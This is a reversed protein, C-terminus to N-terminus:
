KKFEPDLRLTERMANETAELVTGKKALQEASPYHVIGAQSKRTKNEIYRKVDDIVVANKIHLLYGIIIGVGLTIMTTIFYIFIDM